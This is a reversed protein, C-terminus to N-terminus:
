FTMGGRTLTAMYGKCGNERSGIKFHILLLLSPPPAQKVRTDPSANKTSYRVRHKAEGCASELPTETRGNLLGASFFHAAKGLLESANLQLGLESDSPTQTWPGPVGKGGSGSGPATPASQPAQSVPLLSRLLSTQAPRWLLMQILQITFTPRSSANLCTVAQVLGPPRVWRQPISFLNSDVPIFTFAARDHGVRQSGMSEDM